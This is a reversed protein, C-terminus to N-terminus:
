FRDVVRRTEKFGSSARSPANERQFQALAANLAHNQPFNTHIEYLFVTFGVFKVCVVAIELLM